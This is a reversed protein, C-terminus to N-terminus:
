ARLDVRLRKGDVALHLRNRVLARLGLTPLRPASAAGAPYVAIGEPLELCFPPRKALADREGPRNRHLWVNASILPLFQSGTSIRGREVFAAAPLGSCQFVHDYQLSFNHNLGIDLVAPFRLASPDLKLVEAPAISVWVIIQYARVILKGSPVSVTTESDFFPLRRLIFGYRGARGPAAPTRFHRGVDRYLIGDPRPQTPRPLHWRCARRALHTPVCTRARLEHRVLANRSRRLGRQWMAMRMLRRRNLCRRFQPRAPLCPLDHRPSRLAMRGRKRSRWSRPM